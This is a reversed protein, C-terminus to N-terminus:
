QVLLQKAPMNKDIHLYQSKYLIENYYVCVVMICKKYYISNICVTFCYILM